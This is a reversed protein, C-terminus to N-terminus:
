IVAAFALAAIAVLAPIQVSSAGAQVPSTTSAPTSTIPL